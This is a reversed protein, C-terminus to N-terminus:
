NDGKKGNWKESSAEKQTTAMPIKLKQGRRTVCWTIFSKEGFVSHANLGNLLIFMVKISDSVQQAGRLGERVGWESGTRNVSGLYDLSVVYLEVTAQWFCKSEATLTHITYTIDNTSQEVEANPASWLFAQLFCGHARPQSEYQAPNSRHLPSRRRDGDEAFLCWRLCLCVTCVFELDKNFNFARERLEPIIILLQVWTQQVKLTKWFGLPIIVELHRSLGQLSHRNFVLHRFNMALAYM